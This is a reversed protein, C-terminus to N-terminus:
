GIPQRERWVRKVPSWDGHGASRTHLATDFTLEFLPDPSEPPFRTGSREEVFRAYVSGRLAASTVECAVGAIYFEDDNAASPFTHLAYRPDRRLDRLKPTTVGIFAYLCDDSILPSIPHVRPGGDRRVTSLFALGVGFQYLLARGSEALGSEAAQFESWRLM